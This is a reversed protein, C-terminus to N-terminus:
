SYIVHFEPSKMNLFCFSMSKQNREEILLDSLLKWQAIVVQCQAVAVGEARAAM